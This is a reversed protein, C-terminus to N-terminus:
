EFSPTMALHYHVFVITVVWTLGGLVAFGCGQQSGIQGCHGVPRGREPQAQERDETSVDTPNQDSCTATRGWGPPSGSVRADNRRRTMGAPRGAPLPQGRRSSPWPKPWGRVLPELSVPEPKAEGTEWRSIQSRSLGCKDALGQQTLGARERWARLRAASFPLALPRRVM